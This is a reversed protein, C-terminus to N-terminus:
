KTALLLDSWANCHKIVPPKSFTIFKLYPCAWQPRHGSRFSSCVRHVEQVSPRVLFARHCSPIVQLYYYWLIHPTTAIFPVKHTDTIDEQFLSPLIKIKKKCERWGEALVPSLMGATQYILQPPNGAQTQAMSHQQAPSPTSNPHHHQQQQSPAMQGQNNMGQGHGPSMHSTMYIPGHGTTMTDGYSSNSVMGQMQPGVLRMAYLQLMFDHNLLIIRHCM